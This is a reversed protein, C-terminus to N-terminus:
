PCAGPTADPVGNCSAVCANGYTVGDCGCVPDYEATCICDALPTPPNLECLTEPTDKNCSFITLFFVSLFLISLLKKQM